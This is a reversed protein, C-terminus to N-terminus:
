AEEKYDYGTKAREALEAKIHPIEKQDNKSGRMKIIEIRNSLEKNTFIKYKPLVNRGDGKHPGSGPGGLALLEGITELDDDEIAAELAALQAALPEVTPDVPQGEPPAPPAPTAAKVQEPTLPKFGYWHDRIEDVTFVPMAQTQNTSAWKSAGDAREQETLTQVHPWKVEYVTPGGAPEPLYNFAILRDVLPRVIYPGVYGTQRGDVQDKWNDRDQSSALEGMESGTLIRKPIGICGSIQTLIADAPNSFNAVDSGLTNVDVGRTRLWRTMGNKYEESQEKLAAVADKADPLAMDKDINVHLGQNARLWFAEAGGGTVKDLDDLLNWPRQLRPQGYVEDFLCNEAVHVIRTWHVPVQLAPSSLDTRKLRYTNPLGFRPSEANTDFTEITCDSDLAMARSNADGGPGGGGSFASLYLLSKSNGRGNPLPDSLKGGGGILLVAYTSLGTLIDVRRLKALVQLRTDLDEWAQEFATVKEPDDDEELWMDGRWCANPLADVIRGAVGGRAYRDRMMRFTLIRDYGLVEFLDRRGKFTIGAQNMFRLRDLVVSAAARIEAVENKAAMDRLEPTLSAVTADEPHHGNGNSQTEPM